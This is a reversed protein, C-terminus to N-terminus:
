PVSLAILSAWLLGMTWEAPLVFDPHRTRALVVRWTHYILGQLGLLVGWFLAPWAEGPHLAAIGLFTPWGLLGRLSMAIFDTYEGPPWDELLDDIFGVERNPKGSGDWYDGWGRIAWLQYGCAVIAGAWVDSTYLATITGFYFPVAVLKDKLRKLVTDFVSFEHGVPWPGWGRMRNLAAGAFLFLMTAALQM